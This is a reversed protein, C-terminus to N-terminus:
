KIGGGCSSGRVEVGGGESGWVARWWVVLMVEVGGQAVLRGGGCSVRVEVGGQAVLCTTVESGCRRAGGPTTVLSSGRVM